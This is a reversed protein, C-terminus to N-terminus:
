ADLVALHSSINSCRGRVRMRAAEMGAYAGHMVQSIFAIAGDCFQGLYEFSIPRFCRGLCNQDWLYEQLQNCRSTRNQKNASDCSRNSTTSELTKGDRHLVCVHLEDQSTPCLAASGGHRASPYVYSCSPALPHILSVDLSHSGPAFSLKPTCVHASPLVSCNHTLSTTFEEATCRLECRRNCSDGTVHIPRKNTTTELNKGQRHLLMEQVCCGAIQRLSVHMTRLTCASHAYM